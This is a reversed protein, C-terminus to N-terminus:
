FNDVLPFSRRHVYCNCQLGHQHPTKQYFFLIAMQKGAKLRVKIVMSAEEKWKARQVSDGHEIFKLLDLIVLRSWNLGQATQLAWRSPCPGHYNYHNYDDDDDYHNSRYDHDYNRSNPCLVADFSLVM